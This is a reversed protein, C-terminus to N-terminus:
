LFRVQAGAMLVLVGTGPKGPSSSVRVGLHFSPSCIWCSSWRPALVPAVNGGAMQSRRARITSQSVREGPETVVSARKM